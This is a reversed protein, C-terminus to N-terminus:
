TKEWRNIFYENCKHFTYDVIGCVPLAHIGKLVFTFVELINTTIFGCRSGGEDFALAWKSKEPLQELLWANADDNLVKELEKLRAEFKKEEKVKCLVKLRVIVENSLQKKCINAAFHHSCSRHILPPYGEIHEKAGNLLCCHRDSIMCISRSPGAVEKRVYRLFRSWNENNEGEVLAFALPLLQNEVNMGVIIILTGKYKGTL